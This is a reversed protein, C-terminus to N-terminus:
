SLHATLPYLPRDWFNALNLIGWGGPDGGLCFCSVRKRKKQQVAQVFVMVVQQSGKSPFDNDLIAWELIALKFEDCDLVVWTMIIQKLHPPESQLYSNAVGFM